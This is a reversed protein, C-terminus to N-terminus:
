TIFTTLGELLLIDFLIKIIGLKTYGAYKNAVTIAKYHIMRVLIFTREWIGKNPNSVISMKTNSQILLLM